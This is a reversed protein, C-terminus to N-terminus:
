VKSIWLIQLISTLHIAIALTKSVLRARNKKALARARIVYTQLLRITQQQKHKDRFRRDIAEIQRCAPFSQARDACEEAM